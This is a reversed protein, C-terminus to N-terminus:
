LPLIVEFPRIELIHLCYVCSLWLIVFLGIPFHACSVFPCKELSSMPYGIPM